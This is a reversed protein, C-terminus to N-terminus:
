LTRLVVLANGAALGFWAAASYPNRPMLGLETRPVPFMYCFCLRGFSKQGPCIRTFCVVTQVLAVFLALTILAIEPLLTEIVVTFQWGSVKYIPSPIRPQWFGGVSGVSRRFRLRDRIPRRRDCKDPKREYRLHMWWPGSDDIM